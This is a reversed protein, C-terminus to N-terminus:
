CISIALVPSKCSSFRKTRTSITDNSECSEEYTKKLWGEDFISLPNNADKPTDKGKPRLAVAEVKKAAKEAKKKAKELARKSLKEEGGGDKAPELAPDEKTSEM